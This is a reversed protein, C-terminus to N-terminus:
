TNLIHIKAVVNDGNQLKASITGYEERTNIILWTNTGEWKKNAWEEIQQITTFATNHISKDSSFQIVYIRM